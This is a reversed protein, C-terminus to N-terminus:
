RLVRNVQLGFFSELYIRAEMAFSHHVFTRIILSQKHDDYEAAVARLRSKKTVSLRIREAQRLSPVEGLVVEFHFLNPPQSLTTEKVEVKNPNFHKM